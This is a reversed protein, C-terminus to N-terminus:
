VERNTPLTLHTYSVPQSLDTDGIYVAGGTLSDLGAICHMLTSKGSGSPGMIATFKGKEFRVDVGDLAHVESDGAGYFKEADVARAAAVFIATSAPPPLTNM